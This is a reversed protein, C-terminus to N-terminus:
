RLVGRKIRCRRLVSVGERYVPGKREVTGPGAAPYGDVSYCAWLSLVGTGATVRRVM